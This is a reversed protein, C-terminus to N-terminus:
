LKQDGESKELLVREVAKNVAKWEREIKAIAEKERFARDAGKFKVRDALERDEPALGDGLEVSISRREKTHSAKRREASQRAIYAREVTAKDEAAAALADELPVKRREQSLANQAFILVLLLPIAYIWLIKRTAM